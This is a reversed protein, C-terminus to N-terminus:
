SFHRHRKQKWIERETKKERKAGCSVLFRNCVQGGSDGREEDCHAKDQCACVCSFLPEHRDVSQMCVRLTVTCMEAGRICVKRQAHYGPLVLTGGVTWGDCVSGSEAVVRRGPSIVGLFSGRKAMKRQKVCFSLSFLCSFCSVQASAYSKLEYGLRALRGCM